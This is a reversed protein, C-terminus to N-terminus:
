WGPPNGKYRGQIVHALEHIVTGTDGPHEHIWGDTFTIVKGSTWAIGDAGKKFIFNVQQTPTFGDSSLKACLVPYYEQADKRARSAWEKLDPTESYDLNVALAPPEHA